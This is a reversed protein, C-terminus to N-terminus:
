KNENKRYIKWTLNSITSSKFFFVNTYAYMACMSSHSEIWLIVAQAVLSHVFFSYVVVVALIENKKKKKLHVIVTGVVINVHFVFRHYVCTWAFYSWLLKLWVCVCVAASELDLRHSHCINNNNNNLTTMFYNIMPRARNARLQIRSRSLSRATSLLWDLSPFLCRSVRMCISM